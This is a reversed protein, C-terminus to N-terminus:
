TLSCLRLQPLVDELFAIGRSVGRLLSRFMEDEILPRTRLPSDLKINTFSGWKPRHIYTERPSAVIAYLRISPIAEGILSESRGNIPFM